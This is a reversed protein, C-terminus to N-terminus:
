SDAPVVKPILIMSVKLYAYFLIFWCKNSGPDSIQRKNCNKNFNPNVCKRFAVVKSFLYSFNSIKLLNYCLRIKWCRNYTCWPINEIENRINNDAIGRHTYINIIIKRLNFHAIWWASLVVNCVYIYKGLLQSSVLKRSHMRLRGYIKSTM